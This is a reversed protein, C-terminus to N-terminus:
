INIFSIRGTATNASSYYSSYQCQLDFSSGNSLYRFNFTGTNWGGDTYHLQSFLSVGYPPTTVRFVYEAVDGSASDSVTALMKGATDRFNTIVTYWTNNAPIQFNYRRNWEMAVSASSVNGINVVNYDFRDARVTGDVHLKEGPSTTGIGVRGLGSLTMTHSLDSGDHPKTWFALGGGHNGSGSTKYGSIMGTKVIDTSGSWWRQRFDIGGGRNGAADGGQYIISVNGPNDYSLGPLGDEITLKSTPSATGIGVNGGFPSLAIDWNATAPGNTVQLGIGNGDNVQAVLLNTSNTTHPQLKIVAESLMTAKDTANGGNENYAHLKAQPSSTGIGVNGTGDKITVADILSGSGNSPRLVLMAGDGSTGRKFAVEAKPTGTSLRGTLVAEASFDGSSNHIHLLQQPSLTGIGVNGSSNITVATGSANDDIGTSSFASIVGGHISNGSIGDTPLTVTKSSLDLSNHLKAPTVAQDAVKDTTVANPGIETADIAAESIFDSLNRAKSM